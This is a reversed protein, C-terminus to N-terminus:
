GACITSPHAPGDCGQGLGGARGDRGEVDHVHPGGRALPLARVSVQDVQRGTLGRGRRGPGDARSRGSGQLTVDEAVGDREADRLQAGADRGVVAVGVPERDVGRLDDHGRSRRAAEQQREEGGEVDAIADGHGAGAVGAVAVDERRQAALDDLQRATGLRAV